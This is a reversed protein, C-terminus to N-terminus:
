PHSQTPAHTAGGDRLDIAQACSDLGVADGVAGDGAAPEAGLSILQWCGLVATSGALIGLYAVPRAYFPAEQTPADGDISDEYALWIRWYYLVRPSLRSALRRALCCRSM